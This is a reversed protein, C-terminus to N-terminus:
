TGSSEKAREHLIDMKSRIEHAMKSNPFDGVIQQGTQLAKQWQRESVALSFQVGLNHLKTRFVSSASEQLALGETPTLYQDLEKLIELSQDTQQRKVATDWEALLERKRRAKQRQLRSPMARAKESHPFTTILREIVAAAQSWHSQECLKDVHAIIQNIRGEETASRYKDTTKKLHQALDQYATRHAMEDIMAYTTDFDHQHLKALIAEALELRDADRFAIEKAADSLRVGQAIQGLLSRNRNVMEVTNDLKEANDKISKVNERTLLLIAFFCSLVALAFSVSGIAWLALAIRSGDPSAHAAIAGGIGSAAAVLVLIAFLIHWGLRWLQLDIMWQILKM